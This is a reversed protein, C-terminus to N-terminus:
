SCEILCSVDVHRQTHSIFESTFMFNVAISRDKVLDDFFRYTRGHQDTVSINPFADSVKGRPERAELRAEIAEYDIPQVGGVPDEGAM